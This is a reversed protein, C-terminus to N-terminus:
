ALYMSEWIFQKKENLNYLSIQALFDNFFILADIYGERYSSRKTVSDGRCLDMTSFVKTVSLQLCM